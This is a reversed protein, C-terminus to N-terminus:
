ALPIALFPGLAAALQFGSSSGLAWHPLFWPAQPLFPHSPGMYLVSYVMSTLRVKHSAHLSAVPPSLILFGHSKGERDKDGVM